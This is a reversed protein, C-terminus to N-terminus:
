EETKLLSQTDVSNSYKELPHVYERILLAKEFGEEDSFNGYGRAYTAWNSADEDVSIEKANIRRSLYYAPERSVKDKLM